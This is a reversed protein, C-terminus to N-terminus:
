IIGHKAQHHMEERLGTPFNGVAFWMSDAALCKWLKGYSGLSRLPFRVEADAVIDAIQKAPATGDDRPDTGPRAGQTTRYSGM